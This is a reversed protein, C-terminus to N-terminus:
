NVSPRGVAPPCECLVPTSTAPARQEIRQQPVVGVKTFSWFASATVATFGFMILLIAKFEWLGAFRDARARRNLSNM